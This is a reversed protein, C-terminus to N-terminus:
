SSPKRAPAACSKPAVTKPTEPNVANGPMLLWRVGCHRSLAANQIGWTTPPLPKMTLLVNYMNSVCFFHHFGAGRRKPHCMAKQFRTPANPNVSLPASPSANLLEPACYSAPNAVNQYTKKKDGKM